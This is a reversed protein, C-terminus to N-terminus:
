RPGERRPLTKWAQGDWVMAEWVMGETHIALPRGQPGGDAFLAATMFRDTRDSWTQANSPALLLLAAASLVGARSLTM